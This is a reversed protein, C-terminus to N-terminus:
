MFVLRLEDNGALPNARYSYGALMEGDDDVNRPDAREIAPHFVKIIQGASSGHVLSLARATNASIEDAFAVRDAGPLDLELSGTLERSTVPVVNGGLRPKYKANTSLSFKLGNSDYSTGGTIAGTSTNYSAGLTVKGSGANNVIAPASWASFDAVPLAAETYTRVMGVVSFKAKPYDAVSMDIDLQAVRAGQIELRSGGYFAVLSVSAFNSSVPTYEVKVSTAGSTTYTKALAAAQLLPDLAPAVGLTGSAALELTFTCMAWREGVLSPSNGMYPRLIRRMVKPINFQVDFDDLILMADRSAVPLAWNNYSLDDGVVEFSASGSNSYGGGGSTVAAATVTNASVTITGRATSGGSGIFRVNWSGNAYSVGGSTVTASGIPLAGGSAAGITVAAGRGSGLTTELKALLVQLRSLESM